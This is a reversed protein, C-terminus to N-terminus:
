TMRVTRCRHWPKRRGNLTKEVREVQQRTPTWDCGAVGILAVVSASAAFPSM